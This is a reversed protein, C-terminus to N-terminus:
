IKKKSAEREQNIAKKDVDVDMNSEEAQDTEFDTFEQVINTLENFFLDNLKTRKALWGFKSITQLLDHHEHEKIDFITPASSQAEVAKIYLESLKGIYGIAKKMMYIRAKKINLHEKPASKLYDILACLNKLAIVRASYLNKEIIKDLKSLIRTLFSTDTFNFSAL